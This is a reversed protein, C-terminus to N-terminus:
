LKPYTLEGYDDSPDSDGAVSGDWEIECRYPVASAFWAAGEADVVFKDGKGLRTPIPSAKLIKTGDDEPRSIVLRESGRSFSPGRNEVVCRVSVERFMPTSGTQRVDVRQVALDFGADRSGAAAPPSLSLRARAIPPAIISFALSAAACRAVM